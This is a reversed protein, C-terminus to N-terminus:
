FHILPAGGSWRWFGYALSGVAIAPVFPLREVSQTSPDFAPKNGTTLRSLLGSINALAHRTKHIWLLRGVAFLGSILLAYLTVSIIEVPGVFCGLAALLKIDGAGFARVLYFPLLLVLGTLGGVLAARGGLAGSHNALLGEGSGTPGLVNLALGSCVMWFLQSNSVRRHRIDEVVAFAMFITLMLLSALQWDAANINIGVM